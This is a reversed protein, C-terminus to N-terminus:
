ELIEDIRKDRYESLTMFYNNIYYFDEKASVFWSNKIKFFVDVENNSKSKEEITYIENRKFSFDINYICVIKDGVNM